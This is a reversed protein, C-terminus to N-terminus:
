LRWYIAQCWPLSFSSGWLVQVAPFRISWWQLWIHPLGIWASFTQQGRHQHSNDVVASHVLWWPGGYSVPKDLLIDALSVHLMWYAAGLLYRGLPVKEKRVLAKAFHLFNATLAWTSGCFVFRELWLSLFAAHEEDSIPGTKRHDVIFGWWGNNKKKTNLQYSCKIDVDFPNISSLIDLGILMKVDLLTPAMPGQRLIFANLTDSWFYGIASLLPEDKKLNAISLALCQAIGVEEWHSRKAAVM